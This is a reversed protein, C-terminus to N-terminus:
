TDAGEIKAKQLSDQMLCSAGSIAEIRDSDLVVTWSSQITLLANL